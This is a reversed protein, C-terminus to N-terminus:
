QRMIYIHVERPQAPAGGRYTVQGRTDDESSNVGLAPGDLGDNLAKAEQETVGSIVAELVYSAGAVGSAGGGGLDYAGEAFGLRSGFSRDTINLLRVTAGRGLRARFPQDLLQESLLVADYNDYSAPVAFPTGSRSALSGFHACHQAAASKIAQVSALVQDVQAQNVAGVARAPSMRNSVRPVILMALIALIALVGILEIFSFGGRASDRRWSLFSQIM